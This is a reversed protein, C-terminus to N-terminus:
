KSVHNDPMYEWLGCAILVFILTIFIAWQWWTGCGRFTGDEEQFGEDQDGATTSWDELAMPATAVMTGYGKALTIGGAEEDATEQPMDEPTKKTASFLKGRWGGAGPRPQQAEVDLIWASVRSEFGQPRLNAVLCPLVPRPNERLKRVEEDVVKFCDSLLTPRTGGSSSSSSLSASSATSPSSARKPPLLEASDPSNWSYVPGVQESENEKRVAPRPAVPRGRAEGQGSSMKSTAKPHYIVVYNRPVAESLTWKLETNVDKLIQAFSYFHSQSSCRLLFNASRTADANSSSKKSRGRAPHHKAAECPNWKVPTPNARTSSVDERHDHTDRWSLIIRCTFHLLEQLTAMRSMKPMTYEHVTQRTCSATLNMSGLFGQVMTLAGIRAGDTGFLHRPLQQDLSPQFSTERIIVNSFM